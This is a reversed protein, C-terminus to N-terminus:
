VRPGPRYFLDGGAHHLRYKWADAVACARDIQAAIIVSSGIQRTELLRCEFYGAVGIPVRVDQGEALKWDVSFREFKDTDKGSVSGAALVLAKQEWTPLALVFRGSAEINRSTQHGPDMVFLVRSTPEYDLPCNWAVPAMDYDGDASRTCVLIVGGPNLLTYADENSVTNMRADSPLRAEAYRAVSLDADASLRVVCVVVVYLDFVLVLPLPFPLGIARIIVYGLFSAVPLGFVLAAAKRRGKVAQIFGLGFALLFATWMGWRATEELPGPVAVGLGRSGILVMLFSTAALCLVFAAKVVKTRMTITFVSVLRM